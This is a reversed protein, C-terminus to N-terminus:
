TDLPEIVARAATFAGLPRRFLVITGSMAVIAVSLTRERESFRESSRLIQSLSATQAFTRAGTRVSSQRSLSPTVPELGTGGM